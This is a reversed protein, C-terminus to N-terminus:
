GDVRVELDYVYCVYMSEVYGRREWIGWKKLEGFIVMAWIFRKIKQRSKKEIQRSLLFSFFFSLFFSLFLCKHM